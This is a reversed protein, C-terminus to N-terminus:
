YYINVLDLKLFYALPIFELYHNNMTIQGTKNNFLFEVKFHKMLIKLYICNFPNIIFRSGTINEINPNSYQSSTLPLYFHDRFFLCIQYSILLHSGSFDYFNCEDKKPLTGAEMCPKTRTHTHTHTHAHTRKHDALKQNLIHGRNILPAVKKESM